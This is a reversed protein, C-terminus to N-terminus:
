ELGYKNILSKYDNVINDEKPTEATIGKPLEGYTDVYSQQLTTRSNFMTDKLVDINRILEEQSQSQKLNAVADALAKGEKESLAGMTGGQRKIDLLSNIMTKAGLTDLISDLEGAQSSPFVAGLVDGTYGTTWFGVKEKALEAAENLKDLSNVFDVLGKKDVPRTKNLAKESERKEKRVEFQEKKDLEEELQKTKPSVIEQPAPEVIPAETPIAQQRNFLTDYISRNEPVQSGTTPDFVQKTNQADLMKISAEQEPTVPLGASANFIGQKALASFNVGEGKQALEREKFDMQWDQYAKKEDAAMKQRLADEERLKGQQYIQGAQSLSNGLNEMNRQHIPMGAMFIRPDLPM